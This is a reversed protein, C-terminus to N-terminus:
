EKLMAIKSGDKLFSSFHEQQSLSFSQSNAMEREKWGGDIYEGREADKRDKFEGRDAYQRSKYKVHWSTM